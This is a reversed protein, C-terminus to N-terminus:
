SYYQDFQNLDPFIVDVQLGKGNEPTGLNISAHHLEAIQQAIALGLGSGSTKTGLIRYFREFVRTRLEPSIGPGNDIVRLIVKHQSPQTIVQVTVFGGAPTYRIANDVLNRILISLAMENGVVQSRSDPDLFEIEVHKALSIPVLEALTETAIRNLSVKKADNLTDESGLRSLTLLQQVIHTARDVSATLQNLVTNREKDSTALLALQTQTKLAALPTRLEHAADSAFRKNREFAQQLRLFLNNLENILAHIEIPLNKLSLSSFDTEKRHALKHAIIDLSKLGHGVTLWILLGLLPYTWLIILLNDWTIRQELEQRFNYLEAVTIRLGLPKNYMSFIRWTNNDLTIDTFGDQKALMYTSAHLSHLILQHHDNWIQFQFRDNMTVKPQTTTNKQNAHMQNKNTNISNQLHQLTLTSNHDETLIANIFLTTQRLHVDLHDQIDVNDLFYNGVATISSTITISLLLNLLLFRRISPTM